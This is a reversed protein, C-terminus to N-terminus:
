AGGPLYRTLGYRYTVGPEGNQIRWQTLYRSAEDNDAAYYKHVIQDTNANKIYFNPAQKPTGEEYPRLPTVVAGALQTEPVGWEQAAAYLANQKSNAVVEMRRNADWQVNWWYKQGSTNGKSVQRQVQTQKILTSLEQKTMQGASFKAFLAIPDSDSQPQLIQYLKKLYEQRYKQPDCAADLAVVFRLLTNELKSWDANLWDGGPSRFEIYGVHANISTYKDTIGSHIMKSASPYLKTKMQQLLGQAQQPNKKVRDLVNSLSSRAYTNAIRGFQELVYRDGLLLALKVYDCNENSFNPVSVNMHLGTSKNTYCGTSKAWAIVKEFDSLMEDLPLPPSVFELGGDGPNADISGDPEVVYTNPKREAGHYDASYDVPRGISEGFSDAISEISRDGSGKMYPWYLDYDTYPLDSMHRYGERRLYDQEDPWDAQEEWSDRARDYLRGQDDWEEDLWAQKKEEVLAEVMRDFDEPTIDDGYEDTVEEEAEERATNDDFEDDAYDNFYDRGEDAWQEWRQENAWDYYGEKLGEILKKIDRHGNYEGESFFEEISDFDTVREDSDYDPEQDDDTSAEPVVMEFEIGAIAGTKAAEQRLFSPKMSVEDLVGFSEKVLEIARM